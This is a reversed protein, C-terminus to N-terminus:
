PTGLERGHPAVMSTSGDPRSSLDRSSLLELVGSARRRFEAPDPALRSVEHELDGVTAMVTALWPGSLWLAPWLIEERIIGLIRRMLHAQGAGTAEDLAELLEGAIELREASSVQRDPAAATKSGVDFGGDRVAARVTSM